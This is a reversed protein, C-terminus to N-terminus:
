LVFVLIKNTGRFYQKLVAMMREIRADPEMVEVLQKVDANATLIDSGITVQVPNKLFSSALDKVESPWTASFMATQRGALTMPLIRKLDPAFGLDLMRDAEDLVVFSVNSLDVVGDNMLDM